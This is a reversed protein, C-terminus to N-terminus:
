RQYAAKRNRIRYAEALRAARPLLLDTEGLGTLALLRDEAEAQSDGSFEVMLVAAPRGVFFSMQRKLDLNERA